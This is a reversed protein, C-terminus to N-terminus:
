SIGELFPQNMLREVWAQVALAQDRTPPRNKRYLGSFWRMLPLPLRALLLLRALNLAGLLDPNHKLSQMASRASWAYRSRASQASLNANMRYLVLYEPLCAARTLRIAQRFLHADQSRLLEPDYLGADLLVNRRFVVSSHLFPMRLQRLRRRIATDETPGNLVDIAQNQDDIRMSWSGLMGVEPHNRLYAIQREFRGPMALDDADLIAILDARASRIALNRSRARGQNTPQRLLRIRADRAAYQECIRGTGDTSADDVLILELGDVAQALVSRIALGIERENNFTPMIVSINPM